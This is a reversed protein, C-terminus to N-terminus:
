SVLRLLFQAQILRKLACSRITAPSASASLTDEVPETQRKFCEYEGVLLTRRTPYEDGNRARDAYTFHTVRLLLYLTRALPKSASPVTPMDM